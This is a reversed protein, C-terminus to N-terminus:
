VLLRNLYVVLFFPGGWQHNKTLPKYPPYIKNRLEKCYEEQKM